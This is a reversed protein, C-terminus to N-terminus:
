RSKLFELVARKEDDSVENNCRHCYVLKHLTEDSYQYNPSFLNGVRNAMWAGIHYGFELAVHRGQPGVSIWMDHARLGALGDHLASWSCRGIDGMLQAPERDAWQEPAHVYGYIDPSDGLEISQISPQQELYNAFAMGLDNHEKGTHKWAGHKAIWQDVDHQTLQRDPTVEAWHVPLDILWGILANITKGVSKGARRYDVILDLKAIKEDRDTIDRLYM